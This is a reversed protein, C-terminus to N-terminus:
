KGVRRTVQRTYLSLFDNMRSDVPRPVCLPYTWLKAVVAAPCISSTVTALVGRHLLPVQRYTVAREYRPLVERSPTYLRMQSPSRLPFRFGYLAGTFIQRDLSVCLGLWRLLLSWGRRSPYMKLPQQAARLKAAFQFKM